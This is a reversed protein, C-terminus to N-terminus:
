AVSVTRWSDLKSVSGGVTNGYYTYATLQGRRTWLADRPRADANTSGCCGNTDRERPGACGVGGEVSKGYPTACAARGGGRGSKPKPGYCQVLGWFDARRPPARGTARSRLSKPSPPEGVERGCQSERMSYQSRDHAERRDPVLLFGLRAIPRSARETIEHELRPTEHATVGLGGGDEVSLSSPTDADTCRHTSLFYKELGDADSAVPPSLESKGLM